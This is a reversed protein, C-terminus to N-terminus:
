EVGLLTRIEARTDDADDGDEQNRTLWEGWLLAQFEEVTISPEAEPPTPAALDDNGTSRATSAPEEAGDSRTQEAVNQDTMNPDTM